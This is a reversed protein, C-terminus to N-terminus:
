FASPGPADPSRRADRTAQEEGKAADASNATARDAVVAVMSLAAADDLAKPRTNAAVNGMTMAMTREAAEEVGNNTAVTGICNRAASPTWTTMAAM